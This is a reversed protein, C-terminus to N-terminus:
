SYYEADYDGDDDIPSLRDGTQLVYPLFPGFKDTGPPPRYGQWIAKVEVTHTKYRVPWRDLWPQPAYEKKFGDWWTAPYAITIKEIPDAALFSVLTCVLNDMAMPLQAQVFNEFGMEMQRRTIVQAAYVQVIDLQRQTFSVNSM